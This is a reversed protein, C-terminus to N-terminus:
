QKMKRLWNLADDFTYARYIRFRDIQSGNYGRNILITHIGNKSAELATSLKDEIMISIGHEKCFDVKKHSFHLKDSPIGHKDLWKHTDQQITNKVDGPLLREWDGVRATVIYVNCTNMLENVFEIMNNYPPINLLGGSRIWKNSAEDIPVRDVGHGWDSFSYSTPEEDLPLTCGYEENLFRGFEQYFNAIVGDMDLLVRPKM